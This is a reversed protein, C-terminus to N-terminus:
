AARLKLWDAAVFQRRHGKVVALNLFAEHREFDSVWLENPRGAVFRRKVLDPARPSERDPRTTIMSRSRSAGRIGLEGMLRAVRDKDVILGHERRLGAKIKRRGYVQYNDDFVQRIKPKLEEDALDRASIPRQLASRM